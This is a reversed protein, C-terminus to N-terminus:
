ASGIVVMNESELLVEEVDADLYCKFAGVGASGRAGDKLVGAVLDSDCRTRRVVELDCRACVVVGVELGIVGIVKGLYLVPCLVCPVLGALAGNLASVIVVEELKNVRGLESREFVFGGEEGPHHWNLYEGFQGLGGAAELPNVGDVYEDEERLQPLM